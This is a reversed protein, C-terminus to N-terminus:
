KERWAMAELAAERPLRPRALGRRALRRAQRYLRDDGVVFADASLAEAWALHLSDYAGMGESQLARARSALESSPQVPLEAPALWRAVAAAREPDPNLANELDHAPSHLLQARGVAVLGLMTLLAGTEEVVRAQSQDDWPRKLVSMDLYLRVPSHGPM